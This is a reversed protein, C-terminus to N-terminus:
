KSKKSGTNLGVISVVNGYRMMAMGNQRLILDLAQDWPVQKLSCTVRGNVDPDIVINFKYNRAFILLVNKLDADKFYFDGPKGTYKKAAGRISRGAQTKVPEKKETKKQKEQKEQKGRCGPSGAAQEAAPLSVWLLLATIACCM